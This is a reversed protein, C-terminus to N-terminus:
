IRMDEWRCNPDREKAAIWFDYIMVEIDEITPHKIKGYYAAAAVKTADTNIPTGDVNSLDGLPRGSPKGKKTTWHAKCLNLNPVHQRAMELPLFFALRKDWVGGLMKNVATAVTEYSARRPTGEMMGNPKFGDPLHVKMGKVLDNLLTIEPNDPRQRAVRESNLRDPALIKLRRRV